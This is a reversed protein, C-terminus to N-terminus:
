NPTYVLWEDDDILELKAGKNIFFDKMKERLALQNADGYPDLMGKVTTVGKVNDLIEHWIRAIKTVASLLGKGQASSEIGLVMLINDDQSLVMNFHPDELLWGVFFGTSEYYQPTLSYGKSLLYSYMPTRVPEQKM